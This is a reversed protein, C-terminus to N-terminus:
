GVDNHVIGIDIKADLLSLHRKEKVLSLAAASTASEENMFLDIVFEYLARDLCSFFALHAVWERRVSILARM